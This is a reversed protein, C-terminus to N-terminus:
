WLIDHCQIIPSDDMPFSFDILHLLPLKSFRVARHTHRRSCTIFTKHPTALIRSRIEQPDWYRGLMCLDYTMPGDRYIWDMLVCLKRYIYTDYIQSAPEYWGSSYNPCLRRFESPYVCTHSPLVVSTVEIM